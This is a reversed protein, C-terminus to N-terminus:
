LNASRDSFRTMAYWPSESVCLVRNGRFAQSKWTALSNYYYLAYVQMPYTHPSRWKKIEHGRCLDDTGAAGGSFQLRDSLLSDRHFSGAPNRGKRGADMKDARQRVKENIGLCYALALHREDISKMRGLSMFFFDRHEEDFFFMDLTDDYVEEFQLARRATNESM